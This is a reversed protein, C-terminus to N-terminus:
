VTLWSFSVLHDEFWRIDDVTPAIITPPAYVVVTKMVPGFEVVDRWGPNSYDVGKGRREVLDMLGQVTVSPCNAIGFSHMAHCALEPDDDYAHGRHFPDIPAALRDLLRDDINPSESIFMSLGDWYKVAEISAMKPDYNQLLLASSAPLHASPGWRGNSLHLSSLNHLISTDWLEEIVDESLGDLILHQVRLNKEAMYHGHNHAINKVDDADISLDLDRLVLTRLTPLSAVHELVDSLVLPGTTSTQDFRNITLVDLGGSWKDWEHPHDVARMFSFGDLTLRRLAPFRSTAGRIDPQRPNSSILTDTETFSDCSLALSTLASTDGAFQHALSPLAIHNEVDVRMRVCRGMHPQCANLLRFVAQSEEDEIAPSDVKRTIVVGIPLNKSYALVDCPNLGGANSNGNTYLVVETWFEPSLRLVDRWLTCVEAQAYPFLGPSRLYRSLLSTQYNVNAEHTSDLLRNVIAKHSRHLHSLITLLLEAPLSFITAM